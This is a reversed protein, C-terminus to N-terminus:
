GIKDPMLTTRSYISDSISFGNSLESNDGGTLANISSRNRIVGESVVVWSSNFRAEKASVQALIDRFGDFDLVIVISFPLTLETDFNVIVWSPLFWSIGGIDCFGILNRPRCIEDENFSLHWTLFKASARLLPRRKISM